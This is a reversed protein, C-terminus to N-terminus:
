EKDKRSHVKDVCWDHTTELSNKTFTFIAFTLSTATMTKTITPVLGRYFAGIGESKVVKAACDIM